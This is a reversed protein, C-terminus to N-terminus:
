TSYTVMKGLNRWVNDCTVYGRRIPKVCLQTNEGLIVGNTVSRPVSKDSGGSYCYFIMVREWPGIELM